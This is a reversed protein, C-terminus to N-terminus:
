EKQCLQQFYQAEECPNNSEVISKGVIMGTPKLSIISSVNNRNISDSIFIPLSANGKIMEWRDSMTGSDQENHPLHCLLAHAGLNKAELASQAVSASDRLDLMIKVGLSDATACAAHIVHQSTGAMVTIWRAGAKALLTVMDRGNDVIKADVLITADPVAQKLQEIAKIGHQYILPTGIEIIDAYPTVEQAITLARELDLIDFSIQLKM